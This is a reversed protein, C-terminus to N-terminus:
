NLIPWLSIRWGRNSGEYLLLHIQNSLCCFMNYHIILTYIAGTPWVFCCLARNSSNLAGGCSYLVSSSPHAPPFLPSLMLPQKPECLCHLSAQTPQGLLHVTAWVLSTSTCVVHVREHFCDEKVATVVDPKNWPCKLQLFLFITSFHPRKVVAKTQMSMWTMKTVNQQTPAGSKNLHHAFCCTQLLFFQKKAVKWMEIPKIWKCCITNKELVSSFRIVGKATEGTRM